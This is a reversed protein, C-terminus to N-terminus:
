SASEQRRKTVENLADLARKRAIAHDVVPLPYSVGLTVDSASLVLSPANWPEFLHQNPLKALEPVWRRVYAGDPDFTAGQRSPNFIRFYPAADAGCGAVWQWSAANSALDADVLTDWFWAEGHQWPILLDKVLFSAVIMRVRNHMWGTHWLERMGADVIPYGTLGRQWARLGAADDAWPFNAYEPKFPLEPLTPWHVLLHASFERWVLEKLFTELGNDANRGEAALRQGEAEAAHWCAAPSIEGFHLHPSLKSTGPCDPRNRNAGYDRLASELFTDLRARAGQEGPSWHDDFGKSWDPKAPHLKWAHRNESAPWHAPAKISTPAPLPSTPPAGSRLARWFPTYVKFPGGTKTRMADPRMLLAGTKRKLEVGRGLLRTHVDTELASAWPEFAAQTFVASASTETVFQDLVDAAAGRRLILRSGCEALNHGLRALSKDLWWRSAGGMRWHSPSVDDLIYLPIVPQGTEVAAALARQDTMRLDQRFWVVVPKM